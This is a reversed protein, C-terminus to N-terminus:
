SITNQTLPKQKFTASLKPDRNAAQKRLNALGGFAVSGKGYLKSLQKVRSFSIQGPVLRKSKTNLDEKMTVLLKQKKQGQPVKKKTILSKKWFNYNEITSLALFQKAYTNCTLQSSIDLYKLVKYHKLSLRSKTEQLDYLFDAALITTESEHLLNTRNPSEPEGTKELIIGAKEFKKKKLHQIDRLM